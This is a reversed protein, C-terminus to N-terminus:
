LLSRLEEVSRRFSDKSWPETRASKVGQGVDLHVYWRGDYYRFLSTLYFSPQISLDYAGLAGPVFRAVPDLVYLHEAYLQLQSLSYDGLLTETLKKDVRRTRWGIDACWGEVERVLGEAARTWDWLVSARVAALLGKFAEWGQRFQDPTAPQAPPVVGTAMRFGEVARQLQERLDEPWAAFEASDYGQVVKPTLWLTARQLAKTVVGANILESDSTMTPKQELRAARRVDLIFEETKPVM